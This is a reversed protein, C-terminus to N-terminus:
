RDVTFILVGGFKRGKVTPPPPDSNTTKRARAGCLTDFGYKSPGGESLEV